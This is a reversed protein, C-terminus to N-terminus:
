REVDTTKGRTIELATERVIGDTPHATAKTWTRLLAPDEQTAIKQGISPVDQTQVRSTLEVV